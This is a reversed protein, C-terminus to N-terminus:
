ERSCGSRGFVVVKARVCVRKGTYLWKAGISGVQEFVVMKGRICGSIGLYLLKQMLVVVKVSYLRNQVFIVVKGSYFREQGFVVGQARYWKQWFVIVKLSVVVKGLYLWKQGFVVIKPGNCGNQELVVVKARFFCETRICGFDTRNSGSYLWKARICGSQEFLAM